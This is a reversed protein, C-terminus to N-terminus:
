PCTTIQRTSRTGASQLRGEFSRLPSIYNDQLWCRKFFMINAVRKREGGILVSDSVALMHTVSSLEFFQNSRGGCDESHFIIKGILEDPSFLLVLALLADIEEDTLLYYSKFNRLRSLNPNDLQILHAVCHLYYMLKATPNEPVTATGGVKKIGVREGILAAM